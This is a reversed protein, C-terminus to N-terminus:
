FRPTIFETKEAKMATKLAAASELTARTSEKERHNESALSQAQLKVSTAQTRLSENMTHLLVGLSEATLKQAGGPSVGHSAAKIQEGIRDLKEAQEYAANNQAVAEAVGQDINRQIQAVKSEVANGYIAALKQKAIDPRKWDDYIGTSVNARMTQVMNLSDNIGRNIDKVFQLNDRTSNVIAMLQYLQQVANSLIQGLIIVDGGFTDARSVQPMGLGLMTMFAIKIKKM